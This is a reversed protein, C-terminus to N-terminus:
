NKIQTKDLELKEIIALIGEKTGKFYANEKFNPIFVSDVIMQTEADSLIKEIGNGNQIRLKRLESSIGILIGNDLDKKGVGWHNTLQLTYDDFEEKTTYSSNLSVVAIEMGTKAECDSVISDLVAVEKESFIGEFDNIFGVAKPYNQSTCAFAFCVIAAIYLITQRM